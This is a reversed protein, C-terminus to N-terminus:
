VMEMKQEVKNESKEKFKIQGLDVAKLFKKVYNKDAYEDIIEVFNDTAFQRFFGGTLTTCIRMMSFNLAALPSVFEKAGGFLVPIIRRELAIVYAEELVCKCKDEFSFKDWLEEKCWAQTLDTQMREYLPKNDYHAMVRHIDDHVFWSPVLGESQGFFDKVSKKLSPSNYKRDLRKKIDTNNQKTIEPMIDKGNVLKHLLCYDRIHKSFKLPIHVHSKKLSYLGAADMYVTKDFANYRELYMWMANGPTAVFMEVNKGTETKVTVFYENRTKIEGYHAAVENVKDFPVILDIDAPERSDPLIRKLASSGIILM